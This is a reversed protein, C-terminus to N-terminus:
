FVDAEAFQIPIRSVQRVAIMGSVTSHELSVPDPKPETETERPNGWPMKFPECDTALADSRAPAPKSM